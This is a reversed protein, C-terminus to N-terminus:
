KGLTLLIKRIQENLEMYQYAEAVEEFPFTKAIQPERPSPPVIAKTQPRRTVALGQSQLAFDYMM